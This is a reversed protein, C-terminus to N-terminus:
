QELHGAGVTKAHSLAFINERYFFKLTYVNREKWNSKIKIM